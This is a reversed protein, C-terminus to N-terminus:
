NENSNRQKIAYNEDIEFDYFCLNQSFVLFEILGTEKKFVTWFTLEILSRSFEAIIGQEWLKEVKIKKPRRLVNDKSVCGLIKVFYFILHCIGKIYTILKKLKSSLYNM